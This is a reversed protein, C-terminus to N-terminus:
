PITTPTPEGIIETLIGIMNHFYTITRLGGNWWTSYNAGSRMASGGKGEAVLRSHMAAGVMDIGLPVLPEVNYNFPDRFPPMFIVGGDPGTQHHNYMIEPFWELFLVHNMNTTEKMNSMYFDRNDDHGIYKAWLRPLNCMNRRAPDVLPGDPKETGRMYWNAILEQGDPNAQVCLVIDDNLIRITEPDTRSALQYVWEMLQQSGVSESAHLGGDIWVVAKGERALAHAQEDTLGEAHALRQSIEKYHDLKKMNEPSSFIAMYQHRNESTLGIDVLKMRDSETALTKWYAELQTYNAVMYDDGLNFGLAEKPTTIKPASQASLLYASFALAFGVKHLPRLEM